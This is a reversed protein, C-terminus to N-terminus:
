FRNDSGRPFEHLRGFVQSCYGARLQIPKIYCELVMVVLQAVRDSNYCLSRVWPLVICNREADM